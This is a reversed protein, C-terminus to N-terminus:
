SEHTKLLVSLNLGYIRNYKELLEKHSKKKSENDELAYLKILTYILERPNKEENALNSELQKEYNAVAKYFVNELKYNCKIPGEHNRLLKGYPNIYRSSMKIMCKEFGYADFGFYNLEGPPASQVTEYLKIDDQNDAKLYDFDIENEFKLENKYNTVNKRTKEHFVIGIDNCLAPAKTSFDDLTAVFYFKKLVSIAQLYLPDNKSDIFAPFARTLLSCLTGQPFVDNYFQSFSPAEHGFRSFLKRHYCYWSIIRDLPERLFTFLKVNREKFYTLMYQHVDHGFIVRIDNLGYPFREELEKEGHRYNVAYMSNSYYQDSGLQDKFQHLLTMGATKHIHLGVFLEKLDVIERQAPKKKFIRM